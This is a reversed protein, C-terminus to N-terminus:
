CRNTRKYKLQTQGFHRQKASEKEASEAGGGGVEAAWFSVWILWRIIIIIFREIIIIKIFESLLNSVFENQVPTDPKVTCNSYIISM